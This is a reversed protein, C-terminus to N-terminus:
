KEYYIRKDMQTSVTKGAKTQSQLYEIIADRVKLGLPYFAVPKLLFKM